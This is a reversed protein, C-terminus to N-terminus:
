NQCLLLEKLEQQHPCIGKNTRKACNCNWCLIQYKGPFTNRIIEIYMLYTLNRRRKKDKYGDNNVHDITLFLFNDEGCCACKNGLIEYAQVKKKYIFDQKYKRYRIPNNLRHKEQNNRKRLRCEECMLGNISPKAACSVCLKMEKLKNYRKMGQEM